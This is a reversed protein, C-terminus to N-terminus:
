RQLQYFAHNVTFRKIKWKVFKVQEFYFGSLREHM